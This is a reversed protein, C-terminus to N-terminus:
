WVALRKGVVNGANKDLVALHVRGVVVLAHVDADALGLGLSGPLQQGVLLEHPVVKPNFRGIPAQEDVVTQSGSLSARGDTHGLAQQGIFLDKDQQGCRELGVKPLFNALAAIGDVHEVIEPLHPDHAAGGVLNGGPGQANGVLKEALFASVKDGNGAFLGVKVSQREVHAHADVALDRGENVLAVGKDVVVTEVALADFHQNGLVIGFEGGQKVVADDEDVFSM